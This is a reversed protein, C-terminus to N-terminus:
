GAWGQSLRRDVADSVAARLSEHLLVILHSRARSMGTYVLSRARPDSVNEIDCLLVIPSELGKFAHVTSFRVCAASARADDIARVSGPQLAGAASQELKRPSLIMVDEHPVGDRALMQLVDNLRQAQHRGDRYYRYDVPLCEERDLRYPLSEFGSMLATEEGIARTNRCNRRLVSRTFQDSYRGLLSIWADQDRSYLSQRTFDGLMVWRGGALGGTLWDNLVDLVPESLLDQAEDLILLDAREGTAALALQGYLPYVLDFLDQERGAASKEAERFEEAVPSRLILRRLCAHYSGGEGHGAPVVEAFRQAIWEGLRRNFSFLLVRGVEPAVRRAFELALLTKGTGAAGEVLCRPNLEFLDLIDYQEETMRVIREESRRITTARAIGIDFDPRLFNRVSKLTSSTALVSSGARGIRGAEQALARLIASSIPGRLDDVDIMEWTEYEPSLPPRPVDPLVVMASYVLRAEDSADGFRRKAASRLAFTAQRVQAIPSRPLPEERDFRDRTYWIGEDCRIRGGKVELCAVGAAPVLVVFDIEGFPRDGRRSLGLSHLVTWDETAPDLRLRDFIRRESPPTHAHVRPPIMRAM